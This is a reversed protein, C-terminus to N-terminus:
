NGWRFGGGLSPSGNSVLNTLIEPTPNKLRCFFMQFQGETKEIVKPEGFIDPIFVGSNKIVLIIAVSPGAVFETSVIQLNISAPARTKLIIKRM